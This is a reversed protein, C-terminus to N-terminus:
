ARRRKRFAAIAAAGALITMTAPEPVPAYQVEGAWTRPNFSDAFFLAPDAITGGRAGKAIGATIKLDGNTFTSAGGRYGVYGDTMANGGAHFIGLSVTSGTTLLLTNAVDIQTWSGAANTTGNWTGLLNWVTHDTENGVLAGNKYYVAYTANSIAASANLNFKGTLKLDNASTNELSILAGGYHATTGVGTGFFTQAFSCTSLAALAFFPVTRLYQKM